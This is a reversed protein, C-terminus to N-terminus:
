QDTLERICAERIDWLEAASFPTQDQYTDLFNKHWKVKFDGIQNPLIETELELSDYFSESGTQLGTVDKVANNIKLYTHAEPIASLQYKKLLRGVGTHTKESLLFIGLFLKIDKWGNEMAVAKILANKTSCTGREEELVLAYNSRDSNRGYPLQEVWEILSQFSIIGRDVCANSLAGKNAEILLHALAAM